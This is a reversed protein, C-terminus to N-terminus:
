NRKWTTSIDLDPRPNNTNYPYKMKMVAAWKDGDQKHLCLSMKMTMLEADTCVWM